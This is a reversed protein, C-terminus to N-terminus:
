RGKVRKRARRIRKAIAQRADHSDGAQQKAFGYDTKAGSQEVKAVLEAAAAVDPPRGRRRQFMDDILQRVGLFFSEEKGEPWHEAWATVDQAFFWPDDRRFEFVIPNQREAAKPPKEKKAM